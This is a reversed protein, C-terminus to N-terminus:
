AIMRRHGSTRQEPLRSPLGSEALSLERAPGPDGLGRDRADFTAQGRRPHLGQIPQQTLAAQGEVQDPPRAGLDVPRQDPVAQPERRALPSAERDELPLPRV